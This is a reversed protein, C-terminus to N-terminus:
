ACRRNYFAAQLGTAMSHKVMGEFRLPAFAWDGWASATSDGDAITRRDTQTLGETFLEDNLQTLMGVAYADGIAHDPQYYRWYSK